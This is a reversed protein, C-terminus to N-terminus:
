RLVAREYLDGRGPYAGTRKLRRPKEGLFGRMAAEYEGDQEMRLRLLDGVMRSVSTGNRAAWVRAWQAADEPLTITVNKM